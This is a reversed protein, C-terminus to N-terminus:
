QSFFLSNTDRHSPFFFLLFPFDTLILIKSWTPRTRYSIFLSLM